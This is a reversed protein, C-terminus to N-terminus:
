TTGCLALAASDVAIVLDMERILGQWLAISPQGVTQSSPFRAHLEQAVKKEGANGYIFYFYPNETEFSRLVEQLTKESLQKNVWKSGCAVMVRPRHSTL